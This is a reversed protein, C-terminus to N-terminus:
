GEDQKLAPLQDQRSRRAVLWKHGNLAGWVVCLFATAGWWFSGSSLPGGSPVAAGPAEVTAASDGAGSAMQTPAQGDQGVGFGTEIPKLQPPTQTLWLEWGWLAEGSKHLLADIWEAPQHLMWLADTAAIANATAASAITGLQLESAAAMTSGSPGPLDAVAAAGADGETADAGGNTASPALLPTALFALVAGTSASSPTANGSTANAPSSSGLPGESLALALQATLDSHTAPSIVPAVRGLPPVTLAAISVPPTHIASTGSITPPGGDTPPAPTVSPPAIVVPPSPPPLVVPPAPPPVPLPPPSKAPPAVNSVLRLSLAPAPGTTLPTANEQLQPVLISVAYTEPAAGGAAWTVSLVYTGPQLPRTYSGDPLRSLKLPTGNLYLTLTPANGTSQAVRFHYDEATLVPFQYYDATDSAPGSLRTLTVTHALENPFLPGLVQPATLSDNPEQSSWATPNGPTGRAPGAVSFHVVYDGSRDNGALPDGAFDTLGNAGSLHLTYSGNPLADLLLYTAQNTNPDYSLFRPIVVNGAADLFFVPAAVNTAGPASAAFALQQVNVPRDFTVAVTTPPATLTAGETVSTALVHPPYISPIVELNLVYPGTSNGNAGSHSFNPDFCNTGPPRGIAPNPANTGSSVALYYDGAALGVFLAPDLQLVWFGRSDPTSNNTDLNSAVFDLKGTTPNLRFLSLAPDLTSGIRGAFVEAAFAYSGAGDIHFHYLEVANPNFGNPDTPDIGIAGTVQIRGAGTVSGLERATAATDDASPVTGPVGESGTVQFTFAYDQGAPHTANAGLSNIDNADLVVIGDNTNGLVLLRYFGPGLPVPPTVQLENLGNPDSNFNVQVGLVQTANTFDATPSSLLLVNNDPILTSPDIAASLELRFLYPSASLQSPAPANAALPVGALLAGDISAASAGIVAPGDTPQIGADAASVVLTYDGTAGAYGSGVLFPNFYQDGSGSVAVYYTGTGLTQIIHAFGGQSAGDNQALLHHGLPDLSDTDYLSLVASLHKGQPQDATTLQVLTPQALSFSYYAVDAAGGPGNGITGNISRQDGFNFSLLDQAKDLTVNLGSPVTRRELEEVV